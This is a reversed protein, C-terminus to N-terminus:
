YMDVALGRTSVSPGGEPGAEPGAACAERDITLEVICRFAEGSYRGLPYLELYRQFAEVTGAGRAANWEAAERNTGDPAQASASSGALAAIMLARLGACLTALYKV